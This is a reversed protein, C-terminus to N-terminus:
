LRAIEIWGWIALGVFALSGMFSIIPNKVVKATKTPSLFLFINLVMHGLLVGVGFGYVNIINFLPIYGAFDDLGLIFPISFSMLFLAKYGQGRDKVRLNPVLKDLIPAVAQNIRELFKEFTKVFGYLEFVYKGEADRVHELGEEALRLLVLSALGIMGAMLWRVERFLDWVLLIAMTGVGNGLATGIEIMVRNKWGPHKSMLRGIFIAFDIATKLYIVMGVLVASWQLFPSITERQIVTRNLILIEIHYLGWLVLFVVSTLFLPVIQNPWIKIKNKMM